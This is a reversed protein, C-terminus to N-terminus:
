LETLEPDRYGPLEPFALLRFQEKLMTTDYDGTLRKFYLHDTIDEDLDVLGYQTMLAKVPSWSVYKLAIARPVSLAELAVSLAKSSM